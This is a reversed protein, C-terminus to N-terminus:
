ITFDHLVCLLIFGLARQGSVTRDAGDLSRVRSRGTVAIRPCMSDDAGSQLARWIPRSPRSRGLRDAGMMVAIVVRRLLQAFRRSPPRIRSNTTVVLADDCHSHRMGFFFSEIHKQHRTFHRPDRTSAADRCRPFLRYFSCHVVFNDVIDDRHGGQSCTSDVFSTQLTDM